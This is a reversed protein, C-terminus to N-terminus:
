VAMSQTQPFFSTFVEVLELVDEVDLSDIDESSIGSLRTLFKDMLELMEDESAGQKLSGIGIAKLDKFNPRRLRIVEIKGSVGDIPHKLRYETMVAM